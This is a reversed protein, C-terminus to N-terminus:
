QDQILTVSWVGLTADEDREGWDMQRKKQQLGPKQGMYCQQGPWQKPSGRGETECAEKQWVNSHQIEKLKNLLHAGVRKTIWKAGAEEKSMEIYKFYTVRELICMALEVTM